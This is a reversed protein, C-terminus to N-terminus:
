HETVDKNIVNIVFGREKLFNIAANDDVFNAFIVEHINMTQLDMEEVSIHIPCNESMLKLDENTITVILVKRGNPRTSIMSLM